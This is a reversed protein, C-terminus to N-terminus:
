WKGTNETSLAKCISYHLNRCSKDQRMIYKNQASIPCASNLHDIIEENQKCFRCKSEVEEKLIKKKFYNTSIAQDQAAVITIETEEKIDGTKLCRYSHENDFLNEELKRSLQGHMRNGHWMGKIKEAVSEKM